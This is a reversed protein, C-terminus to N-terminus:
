IENMVSNCHFTVNAWSTHLAHIQTVKAATRGSDKPNVNVSDNPQTNQSRLVMSEDTLYLFLFYRTNQGEQENLMVGSAVSFHRYLSVMTCSYYKCTSYVAQCPFIWRGRDSTSRSSEM